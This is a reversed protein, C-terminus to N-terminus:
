SPSPVFGRTLPVGKPCQATFEGLALRIRLLIPAEGKKGVSSLGDDLLQPLVAMLLECFLHLTGPLGLADVDVAIGSILGGLFPFGSFFIVVTKNGLWPPSM